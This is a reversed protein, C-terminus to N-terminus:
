ILVATNRIDQPVQSYDTHVVVLSVGLGFTRLAPIISFRCQSCFMHFVEQCQGQSIYVSWLVHSVSGSVPRPLHVSVMLCSFCKWVSANHSTCQGYSMLFVEQCQCQSIYVSWLVHSVSGSVPRPLHVSVMLCSVCKWVSVKPSTCQGYSVLCVELCQGQSLYVSELCTFCMGIGVQFVKFFTCQSKYKHVVDQCRRPFLSSVKICTFWMRVGGQFFHVSYSVHSGCGSVGISFTFQSKSMHVVDQCGRPFLSSVKRCTFWM